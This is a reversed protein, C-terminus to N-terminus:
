KEVEKRRYELFFLSVATIIGLAGSQVQERKISLESFSELNKELLLYITESSVLSVTSFHFEAVQYPKVLIQMNQFHPFLIRMLYDAFISEKIRIILTSIDEERSWAKIRQEVIIDAIERQPLVYREYDQKRLELESKISDISRGRKSIDRRIKLQMRTKDDMEMFVKLDAHKSIESDLAHLGQSVIFDRPKVQFAPTFRGISHDYESKTIPKRSIANHIDIKWDALDNQAPNLHSKTRWRKNGREYKHYDDGSLFTVGQKGFVKTISEALTDKGVGSNGAIAVFIPRRNLKLIDSRSVLRALNSLVWSFGLIASLTFSMNEIQQNQLNLGFWTPNGSSIDRVVVLLQLILFAVFIENKQWSSLLILLSLGWLHWGVATTSTLSLSFLATGIFGMLVKLNSRGSRWIWILLLLYIGPFVFFTVEGLKLGMAYVQNAESTQLVMKRFSESWLAPIYSLSAVPLAYIFVRLISTRFRVNVLAFALMFPIVIIVGYKCGIACGLFVGSSKVKTDSLSIAFLFLLIGVIVDTQLYFFSVYIAIPSLFYFTATSIGEKRKITSYILSDIMLLLLLFATGKPLLPLMLVALTELQYVIKVIILLIMGYPFADVRGNSRLWDSWPDASLSLSGVFPYFYDTAFGRSALLYVIVRLFIGSSLVLRNRMGIVEEL